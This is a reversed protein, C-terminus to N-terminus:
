ASAPRRLLVEQAASAVLAGERSFVQVSALGRSAAISYASASFLLWEDARFPRHFWLAHDLSVPRWPLEPRCRDEHLAGVVWAPGTDSVYALAAAHTFPDDPLRERVKAWSCSPGQTGGPAARPGEGADPTLWRGTHGFRGQVLRLEFLPSWALDAGHEPGAVSPPKSLQVDAAPVPPASSTQFSASMNLIAGSSQRAVVQRALFSKGDRLREVEFRVPESADGMRLFYAHLSHPTFGEKVTLEAARLAQAVVHGGYLGEFPYSRSAGVYTDPGHPVLELLPAFGGGPAPGDGIPSL